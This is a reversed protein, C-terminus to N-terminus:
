AAARAAKLMELIDYESLGRFPKGRVYATGAPDYIAYPQSLRLGWALIPNPEGGDILWAIVPYYALEEGDAMCVFWDKKAPIISM